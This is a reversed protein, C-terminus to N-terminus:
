LSGTADRWAVFRASEVDACGPGHRVLSWKDSDSSATSGGGGGGDHPIPVGVGHGCETGNVKTFGFGIGHFHPRGGCNTPESHLRSTPVVHGSVNSEHPAWLLDGTSLFLGLLAACVLSRRALGAKM